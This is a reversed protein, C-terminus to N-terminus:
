RCLLSGKRERFRYVYGAVIGEAGLESGVDRLVQRLPTTLSDTSIRRFVGAVREGAIINFKPRRKDLQELFVTEM